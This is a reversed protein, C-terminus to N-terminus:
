AKILLRLVFCFFDTNNHTHREDWTCPLMTIVRLKRCIYVVGSLYINTCKIATRMMNFLPMSAHCVM